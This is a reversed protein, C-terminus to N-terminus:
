SPLRRMYTYSVRASELPSEPEDHEVLFHEIGATARQAFIRAFDITGAGVDLMRHEPGGGSDKVHVLPFRGPHASFYRLPDGGASIIWYLDMEFRVREVDTEALLVEYPLRGGAPQFEYNHNHYAFRLGHAAAQEGARNFRDAWQQWQELTRRQAAHIWAAVVYRCGIGAAEDLARPWGSNVSDAPVHTAPASLGVERLTRRIAAPSRGFYGAFEVERYGIGAVRALTGEFDRQMETRVTYLQLGVPDISRPGSRPASARSERSLFLPITAVAGGMLRLVRRRDM